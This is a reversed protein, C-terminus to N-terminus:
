RTQTPFLVQANPNALGAKLTKFLKEQVMETDGWGLKEVFAIVDDPSPQEDPRLNLYFGNRRFEPSPSSENVVVERGDVTASGPASVRHGHVYTVSSLEARDRALFFRRLGDGDLRLFGSAESTAGISNQPFPRPKSLGAGFIFRQELWLHGDSDVLYRPSFRWAKVTAGVPVISVSTTGLEVRSQTAPYASSEAIIEGSAEFQFHLEAESIIEHDFRSELHPVMTALEATFTAWWPELYAARQEAHERQLRLVRATEVAGADVYEDFRPM